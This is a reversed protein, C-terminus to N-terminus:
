AGFPDTGAQEREAEGDRARREYGGRQAGGGVRPGARPPWRVATEHGPALTRPM